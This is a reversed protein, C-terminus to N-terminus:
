SNRRSRLRDRCQSFFEHYDARRYDPFTFEHSEWRGHRYMLTIEAFMGDRLYIRHAHDKTSALVLKATTIYGPDINLPRSEAHGAAAAYEAEWANTRHKVDALTGADFPPEFALFTKGLETGMTPVYYSTEDFRFTPSQLAPPGWNTAAREITWRLAEAYRTIVAAILMAPPLPRIDGM